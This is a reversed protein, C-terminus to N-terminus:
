ISGAVLQFTQSPKDTHPRSLDRLPCSSSNSLMTVSQLLINIRQAKVLSSLYEVM